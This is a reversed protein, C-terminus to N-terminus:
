PAVTGAPPPAATSKPRSPNPLTLAAPIVTWATAAETTVAGQWGLHVNAAGPVPERATPKWRNVWTMGALVNVEFSAAGRFLTTTPSTTRDLPMDLRMAERVLAAEAAPPPAPVLRYRVRWVQLQALPTEPTDLTATTLTLDANSSATFDDAVVDLAFPPASTAATPLACAMDRCVADLAQLAEERRSDTQRRLSANITLYLSVAVAVVLTSIAIATMLEILTYGRPPRFLHSGRPM